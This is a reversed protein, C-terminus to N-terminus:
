KLDCAEYFQICYYGTLEVEFTTGSGLCVYVWTYTVLVHSKLVCDM